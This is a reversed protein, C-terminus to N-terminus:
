ESASSARPDVACNCPCCGGEVRCCAPHLWLLCSLQTSATVCAAAETQGHIRATNELFPVSEDAKRRSKRIWRLSNTEQTNVRSFFCYFGTLEVDATSLIRQICSCNASYDTNFSLFFFFFIWNGARTHSRLYHNTKILHRCTLWFVGTLNM